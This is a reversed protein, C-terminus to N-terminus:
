PAAVSGGDRGRKEGCHSVARRAAMSRCSCGRALLTSRSAVLDGLLKPPRSGQFYDAPQSFGARGRFLRNHCSLPARKRFSWAEVSSM